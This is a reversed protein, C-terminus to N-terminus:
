SLDGFDVEFDTDGGENDTNDEVDVPPETTEEPGEHVDGDEEAGGDMYDDEPQSPNTADNGEGTTQQPDTQEQGEAPTKKEGKDSCGAVMLMSLCLVLVLCIKLLNKM